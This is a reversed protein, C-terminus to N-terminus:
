MKAASSIIKLFDPKLSCGGVLFGDIDPQKILETCNAPKVSGGYIIISSAAVGASYKDAFYQRIKSHVEQAQEPTATLGTGIAWVPEYAFVIKDFDSPSVGHLGAELQHMVVKMTNNAKRDEFTEGFCLVVKLGAKLSALVKANALKDDEHAVSHRRESHGVLTYPLGFERAMTPTIEGTYAGYPKTGPWINQACVAVDKRLQQLVFDLYLAPPSVLVELNKPFDDAGNLMAVLQLVSKRTGNCKWNGGVFVRRSSPVPPTSYSM